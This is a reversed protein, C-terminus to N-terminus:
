TVRDYYVLHISHCILGV